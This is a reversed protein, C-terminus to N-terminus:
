MWVFYCITYRFWVMTFHDYLFVLDLLPFFFFFFFRLMMMLGTGCRLSWCSIVPCLCWWRWNVWLFCWGIMCLQNFRFGEFFCVRFAKEGVVRSNDWCKKNPNWSGYSWFFYEMWGDIRIRGAYIRLYFVFEVWFSSILDREIMGGYVYVVVFRFRIQNCLWCCVLSNVFLLLFFLWSYTGCNRDTEGSGM